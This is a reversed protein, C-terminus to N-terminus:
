WEDAAVANPARPEPAQPKPKEPEAVKEKPKLKVSSLEAELKTTLEAGELSTVPFVSDSGCHRCFKRKTLMRWLVYPLNLPFIFWGIKSLKDSGRAVRKPIGVYECKICIYDAM